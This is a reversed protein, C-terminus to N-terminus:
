KAELWNPGLNINVELPPSLPYADEMEKKILTAAAAGELAPIEFVLEDHVQLVMRTMLGNATLVKEINIMAQKIIDAASGQLVSNVASREGFNRIRVDRSLLEPLWRRRGYLTTVYGAKYAEAITKDIYEKVQPYRSFYLDIYTAAEQTSVGLQGALGFGSIGYVIGFNVAKARRRLNEDVKDLPVGFVEAATAQHVDAHEEFAKILTKDQAMHALVRLEIQSYDAVLLNDTPKASIFARRIHKGLETRIPINQLNPNSSSLRGTATVTQNFTTHLRGTKPNVLKPLADVYTSKIKAIERYNIINEIIPHENILKALVSSDTSYGTKTKKVAKLQLKEFLILSLQQPSGINFEEKAHRYIESELNKILQDLEQSYQKLFKSDIGVGRFEMSALVPVLPLELEKYVKDLQNEKLKNGLIEQLNLALYCKLASNQTQDESEQPHVNLYKLALETAPYNARTPELLYSALQVDFAVNALRIDHFRLAFMLPKANFTIKAINEDEFYPKIKPLDTPALCYVTSSKDDATMALSIFDLTAIETNIFDLAIQEAKKLEPEIEDFTVKKVPVEFAAEQEEAPTLERLRELLTNFELEAFTDRAKSLDWKLHCKAIDFDVPAEFHLTALQKSIQAQEKFDRLNQKLKEGKIEDVHEYVNEMSGFEQILKTATKEGIGPVGPINDSPDGKLGLMDPMQDPTIGYREYLKERDYTVIDSIGKRTTMVKTNDDILQFSDRDGTVVIVEMGAKESQRAATALIDDAEFGEKEYIPIDLSTLMEKAIDFQHRLENPTEDRHAKYKEYAEHRFTVIGKDFAVALCDPKTDKMLKILMSTFGYVANTIVGASTALTTPLAYFARYLLSNGDILVIKKKSM